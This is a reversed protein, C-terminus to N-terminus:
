AMFYLMRHNFHLHALEEPPPVPPPGEIPVPVIEPPAEDVGGKKAVRLAGREIRMALAQCREVLLAPLPRV